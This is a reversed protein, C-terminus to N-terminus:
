NSLRTRSSARSGLTGSSSRKLMADINSDLRSSNKMIRTPLRLSSAASLFCGMSLLDLWVGESCSAEM